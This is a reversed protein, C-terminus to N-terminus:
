SLDRLGGISGGCIRRLSEIEFDMGVRDQIAFLREFVRSLLADRDPRLYEGFADKDLNSIARRRLRRNWIARERRVAGRWAFHTCQTEVDAFTDDRSV